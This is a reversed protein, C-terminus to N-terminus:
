ELDPVVCEARSIIVDDPDKETSLFLLNQAFYVIRVIYTKGKLIVLDGPAYLNSGSMPSM